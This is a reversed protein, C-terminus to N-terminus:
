RNWRWPAFFAFALRWLLLLAAPLTLTVLLFPAPIMVRGLALARVLTALPAAVLWATLSRALLGRVSLNGRPYAGLLWAAALWLPIYYL